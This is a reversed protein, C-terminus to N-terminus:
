ITVSINDYLWNVFAVSCHHHIISLSVLLDLQPHYNYCFYLYDLGLFRLFSDYIGFLFLSQQSLTVDLQYM